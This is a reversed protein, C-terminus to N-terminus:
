KISELHKKLENKTEKSIQYKSRLNKVLADITSKPNQDIYSLVKGWNKDGKTLTILKKVGKKDPVVSSTDGSEIDEGAWLELGLGHLAIAKVTSRQITKNVHMSTIENVPISKNRFDMVPLYDIEEMDDIIVGVKVYATRGDHFYNLGTEPDEYVKRRAKPFEDKLMGWANAWPIYDQKGKKQIYKKVNKKKLKEFVQM